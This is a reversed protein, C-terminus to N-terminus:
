PTTSATRGFGFTSNYQNVLDSPNNALETSREARTRRIRDLQTQLDARIGELRNDYDRQLAVRADREDSISKNLANITQHNQEISTRQDDLMANMDSSQQNLESVRKFGYYGALAVLIIILLTLWNNIFFSKILNNTNPTEMNTSTNKQVVQKMMM